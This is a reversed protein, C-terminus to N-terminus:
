YNVAEERTLFFHIGTSCEKWRNTDFNKVEVIKGVEYVFNTDYDSSIKQIDCNSGDFNTISLVKAKSCRCKRTTASSRLADETILLEVIKCGSKKFGIFSGKEPCQLKFFATEENFKVNDLNANNLNACSFSAGKLNANTLNASSLDADKLNTENLCAGRLDSNRLYANSLNANSLIAGRLIAGRLDADRLNAGKLNSGRLDANSLDANSLDANSLNANELNAISLDVKSLKANSLDVNSLETCRLEAGCLYASIGNSDHNLWKKHNEIIKNLEQQIM